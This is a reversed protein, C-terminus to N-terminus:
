VSLAFSNCLLLHSWRYCFSEVSFSTKAFALLCGNFTHSHSIPILNLQHLNFSLTLNPFLFFLQNESLMPWDFPSIRFLWKVYIRLLMSMLKLKPVEDYWITRYLTVNKFTYRQFKNRKVLLALQRDKFVIPMTKHYIKLHPQGRQGNSLWYSIKFVLSNRYRLSRIWNKM